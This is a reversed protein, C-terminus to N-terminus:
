ILRRSGLEHPGACHWACSQITPLATAVIQIDLIAMFMGLCMMVFGMWISLPVRQEVPYKGFGHVSGALAATEAFAIMLVVAIPLPFPLRM